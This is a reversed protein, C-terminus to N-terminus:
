HSAARRDSGRRDRTFAATLREALEDVEGRGRRDGERRDAFAERLEAISGAAAGARRHMIEHSGCLVVECGGTLRVAVLARMDSMGCVACCAARTPRAEVSREIAPTEGKPGRTKATM